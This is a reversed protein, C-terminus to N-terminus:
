SGMQVILSQKRQGSITTTTAKAQETMAANQQAARGALVGINVSVAQAFRIKKFTLTFDTKSASDASQSPSLSEIAMNNLVGWPTEVSFLERGRWLQYFYSFAKAQRSQALAGASRDFFGYLSQTNIVSNNQATTDAAQRLQTETSALTFVPLLPPFIGLPNVQDSQTQQLTTSLVLEAVLGKVTFREPKLAIQDQITTNDEVYHDTIDSACEMSEEALVDFVYGAVGLPPNNPRIIAQAKSPNTVRLSTLVSYISREDSPIITVAPM